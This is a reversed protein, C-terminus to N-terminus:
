FNLANKSIELNLRSQRQEELEELQIDIVMELVGELEKLAQEKTEDWAFLGHHTGTVKAM